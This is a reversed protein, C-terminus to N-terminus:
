GECTSCAVGMESWVCKLITGLTSCLYIRHAVYTKQISFCTYDPVVICAGVGSAQWVCNITHFLKPVESRAIELESDANLSNLSDENLIYSKGLLAERISPLFM